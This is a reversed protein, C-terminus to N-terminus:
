ETDTAKCQRLLGILGGVRARSRFFRLPKADMELKISDQANNSSLICGGVRLIVCYKRVTAIDYTGFSDSVTTQSQRNSSLIGGGGPAAERDFAILKQLWKRRAALRIRSAPRTSRLHQFVVTQEERSPQHLGQGVGQAGSSLTDSSRRACCGTLLRSPSFGIV